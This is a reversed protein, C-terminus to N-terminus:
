PCERFEINSFSWGDTVVTIREDFGDVSSHNSMWFSKMWFFAQCIQDPLEIGPRAITFAKKLHNEEVRCFSTATLYKWVRREDVAPLVPILYSMPRSPISKKCEKPVPNRPVAM